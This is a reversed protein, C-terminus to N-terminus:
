HLLQVRLLQVCRCGAGVQELGRESAGAAQQLGHEALGQRVVGALVARREMPMAQAARQLAM